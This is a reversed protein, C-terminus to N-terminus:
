NKNFVCRGKVYSSKVPTQRAVFEAACRASTLIFTAEDGLVPWQKEGQRNLTLRGDTILGLLETLEEQATVNYLEGLRALKEQISGDGYPSWADNINDCGLHIAVGHKKLERIPPIVGPELPVSSVIHIGEQALLTYIQTRETGSFDNLGFAHSIFVRHQLENEQTLRIVERITKRGATGRDHLHIDIGANYKKALYFTEALSKKYDEDLSYPDVGGIFPVGQKLAEEVLPLSASRLLGHQPFAVLEIPITAEEAVHQIARLYRLDTMPEIDVHSRMKTVGHTMELAVLARAREEISVPLADLLPVEAEFREILTEAPRIPTWPTGIKSKDLHCHKEVLGPLLLQQCADVVSLADDQVFDEMDVIQTFKGQTVELAVLKTKTGSFWEAEQHYGIEIAVNKIWDTM